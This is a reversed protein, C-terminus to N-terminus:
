NVDTQDGMRFPDITISGKMGFVRDFEDCLMRQQDRVVTSNYLDWATKFEIENFGTSASMDGFLQGQARFAQYITTRARESAAQYKESFDTVDLREVKAATDPGDSFNLLIRGANATGSFKETVNKEIESRQEDTPMGSLFSIIYSGMFGNELSNLHLDDIHREIECAKIAGSYTPTPYTGGIDNKIYVISAPANGGPIFKPYVIAKTTRGYPKSFEESYWFCENKKDSRLYRFDIYYIESVQGALNRLVQFACGGYINFDRDLWKIINRFTDGKKNATLFGPVNCKADDGSVYSSTGNVVTRLTSCDNFLGWLYDCYKNDDGYYIYNKSRYENQTLKPISNVIVKDIAAFAMPIATKEM